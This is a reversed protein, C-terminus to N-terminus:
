RLAGIRTEIDTVARRLRALALAAGEVAMTLPRLDRAVADDQESAPMRAIQDAVTSLHATLFTREVTLRLLIAGAEALDMGPAALVRGALAIDEPVTAIREVAYDILLPDSANM